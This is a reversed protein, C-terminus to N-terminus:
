FNLAWKTSRTWTYERDTNNKSDAIGKRVFVHLFRYQKIPKLFHTRRLVARKWIGIASPQM